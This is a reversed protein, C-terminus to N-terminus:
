IRSERSDMHKVSGRSHTKCLVERYILTNHVSRGDNNLAVIQAAIEPLM